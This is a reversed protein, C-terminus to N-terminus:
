QPSRAIPWAALSFALRNDALVRGRSDLIKGREPAQPVLRIRNTDALSRNRDGEYIQLYALRSGIGGLVLTTVLLVLALPQYQKGVTREPPQNDITGTRVPSSSPQTM